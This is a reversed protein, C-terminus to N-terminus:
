SPVAPENGIIGGDALAQIEDDDVGLELLVERNHEGLFPAHRRHLREPGASFRAPLGAYTHTGLLPHDLEEYFGRERFPVVDGTEHPMMVEGVPVGHDWLAAVIEDSSRQACWRSLEEDIADHLERRGDATAMRTDRAWAPDGLAARLGDWQRDDEVAIAVWRDRNGQEDPDASLYLNQPAATVGRNGQRELLTGYASFEIVQEAALNLAGTMMPAEVQMGRGTTRRHELAVLLAFAAHLGAIPDCMGNPITPEADPHGTLWAMGSAQEMTQAYGTRDRWPGSLGFAPMRVVILEDKEDRLDDFGWNGFVRPSYNEVVVDCSLALRRAIARGREDNLDLTVDRKNTSTAQFLPAREWWQDSEANSFMNRTGNPRQCSELHIVDAGLMSLIHGVIPGAWFATFDAVRLGRLWESGVEDGGPSPAREPQERRLGAAYEATQEGLRPPAGYERTSAGSSLRYPPIPQLFGGRPNRVFISEAAVHEHEPVTAGNGVSTAPVRFLSAREVIEETTRVMTWDRIAARIEARHGDRETSLLYPEAWEPHEVLTCFDFWQQATVVMFGVWGDKTPEIGPLPTSRRPAMPRGTVSWVTMPHMMTMAFSIAELMSVDILQGSGSALSRQRAALLGVAGFLGTVWEGLRGGVHLPPHAPEGRHGIAGAWAQLTFETAPKDKWSGELGFPSMALVDLAPSRRRIAAPAFDPEAALSTGPTWIVADADAILRAASAREDASGPDVRVSEKSSSLFQFLAGDEGPLPRGPTASWSRLPEGEPPELKVVDAGAGALLLGCYGSAIGSGLDVVAYGRLPAAGM